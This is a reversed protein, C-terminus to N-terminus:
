EHDKNKSNISAPIFVVSQLDPRRHAMCATKYICAKAGNPHDFVCGDCGHGSHISRVKIKEYGNSLIDGIRAKQLLRIFKSTEM